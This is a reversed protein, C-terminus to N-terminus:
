GYGRRIDDESLLMNSPAATRSSAEPDEGIAVTVYGRQIDGKSLLMNSSADKGYKSAYVDGYDANEYRPTEDSFSDEIVVEKLSDFAMKQDRENEFPTEELQMLADQISLREDPDLELLGKVISLISGSEPNQLEPIQSLKEAFYDRDWGQVREMFNVQDFPYRGLSLELLTIGLAWADIMSADLPAVPTSLRRALELREPSFYRSDGLAKDLLRGKSLQRACGFDIILVEGNLDLVMNGPKLDFHYIEAQHMHSLGTALGHAVHALVQERLFPSAKQLRAKLEDGNGFGALPMFQYLVPEENSSLAEVFDLVPMINPKGDLKVQLAGESRSQEIEKSGKVKKVGSYQGTQINRAIRLKGFNGKGLLVKTKTKGEPFEIQIGTQKFLSRAEERSIKNILAYKDGIIAHTRDTRKPSLSSNM